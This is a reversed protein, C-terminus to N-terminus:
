LRSLDRLLELTEESAPDMHGSGEDREGPDAGPPLLVYYGAWSGQTVNSLAVPKPAKGDISIRHRSLLRTQHVFLGRNPGGDFFGDRDTALVIRGHSVVVLDEWPRLRVLEDRRDGNVGDKVDDEM